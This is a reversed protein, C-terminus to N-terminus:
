RHKVFVITGSKLENKKDRIRYFYIGSALLEFNLIAKTEEINKSMVIQGHENFLELVLPNYISLDCDFIFSTNSHTVTPLVTIECPCLIEKVTLSDKVECFDNSVKVWYLGAKNATYQDTTTSDQWVTIAGPAYAQLLLADHKKNLCWTVDNGLDIEPFSSIIITKTSTFSRWCNSSTMTVTYTGPKSYVHRPNTQRSSNLTGSAPDGFDWDLSGNYTTPDFEVPVNQCFNKCTFGSDLQMNGIIDIGVFLDANPINDTNYVSKKKIDVDFALLKPFGPNTNYGMFYLKNNAPEFNMTGSVFFDFPESLNTVQGNLPDVKIIQSSAMFKPSTMVSNDTVYGYLQYDNMNQILNIYCSPNYNKSLTIISSSMTQLDFIVLENNKSYSYLIIKQQKKGCNQNGGYLGPPFINVLSVNGTADVKALRTGEATSNDIKKNQKNYLFYVCEDVCNYFLGNIEGSIWNVTSDGSGVSDQTFVTDVIIGTNLDIKLIFMDWPNTTTIYYMKNKPDVTHSGFAHINQYSWEDLLTLNGSLPAVKTFAVGGSPLDSTLCVGYIDFNTQAKLFSITPFLLVFLIVIKKMSLM